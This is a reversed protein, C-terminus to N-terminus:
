AMRTSTGCGSHRSRARRWDFIPNLNEDFYDGGNAFLLEYFRGALAEEEGAFQTGYTVAGEGVLFESMDYM